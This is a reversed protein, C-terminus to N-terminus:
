YLKAYLRRDSRVNADENAAIKDMYVTESKKELSEDIPKEPATEIISSIRQRKVLYLLTVGCILCLGILTMIIGTCLMVTPLALLQKLGSAIEKNIEVNFDFWFIPFYIKPVDEFLSVLESSQLLVNIQFKAKVELPIGTIPELTISFSHEENPSLGEIQDLLIPDSKYFHPLSIFIPADYRCASVNMLGSPTCEGNCYCHGMNVVDPDDDPLEDTEESSREESSSPSETTTVPPETTFDSTHEAAFFDETTTTPEFYKAQEHPYRRRTANGLTKKDIVYRYGEIGLRSVTREYEYILPRCIDTSFLVIDDKTRGPPWFEGASGEVINCPSRYFKITDRNNWKRMIGLKSIDDVGTEMNYLGEMEYSNNRMYFWGFRDYLPMETDSALMKGMTLLNDEYGVFLLQEVTKKIHVDSGSLLISLSKQLSYDWYRIKHAASVAVVNLHIIIDSLSGNSHEPDFNWSRRQFYSVTNNEPHFTINNKQKIERFTYPGVQVFHPKKGHVRLEQPNTWNFFYIHLRMPPLNSTDKWIGFSRSTPTLALGKQLIQHFVTPWFSCLSLGCVVLLLGFVGLGLSKNAWPKM